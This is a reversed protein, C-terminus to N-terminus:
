LNFSFWIGFDGDGHRWGDQYPYYSYYDQYFSDDHHTRCWGGEHWHGYGYGPRDFYHGLGRLPRYRYLDNTYVQYNNFHRYKNRWSRHNQNKWTRYHHKPQYYNHSIYGRNHKNYNRYHSNHSYNRNNTHGYSSYNRSSNDFHRNNRYDGSFGQPGNNNHSNRNNRHKNNSNRNSGKNVHKNNRYQNDSRVHNQSNRQGNYSRNKPAKDHQKNGGNRQQSSQKNHSGKYGTDRSRDAVASLSFALAGLTLYTALQTTKLPKMVSDGTTVTSEVKLVEVSDFRFSGFVNM